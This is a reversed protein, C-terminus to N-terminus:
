NWYDFSEKSWDINKNKEFFEQITKLQKSTCKSNDGMNAKEFCMIPVGQLVLSKPMGSNGYIPETDLGYGRNASEEELKKWSDEIAQNEKDSCPLIEANVDGEHMLIESYNKACSVSVGLEKAMNKYIDKKYNKIAKELIAQEKAKSKDIQEYSTSDNSSSTKEENVFNSSVGAIIAIVIIIALIVKWYKKLIKVCESEANKYEEKEETTREDNLSIAWMLCIIWGIITWALVLNIIFVAWKDEVNKRLAINLPWFYINILLIFLVLVLLTTFFAAM